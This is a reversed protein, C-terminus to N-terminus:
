QGLMWLLPMWVLPMFFGGALSPRPSVFPSTM